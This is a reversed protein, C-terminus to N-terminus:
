LKVLKWEKNLVRSLTNLRELSPNRKENEYESLEMQTFNCLEALQKQTLLQKKREQKIEKGISM